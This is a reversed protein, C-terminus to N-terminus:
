RNQFEIIGEFECKIEVIMFLLKENPEFNNYM